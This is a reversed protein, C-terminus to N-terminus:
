STVGPSAGAGWCLATPRSLAPRPLRAGFALPCSHPAVNGGLDLRCLPLQGLPRVVGWQPGWRGRLGLLPGLLLPHLHQLLLHPRGPCLVSASVPLAWCGGLVPCPGQSAPLPSPEPAPGGAGGTLPSSLGETLPCTHSTDLGHGAPLPQLLLPWQGQGQTLLPSRHLQQPHPLLLSHGPRPRTAARGGICVRTCVHTCVHMWVSVCTCVRVPVGALAM